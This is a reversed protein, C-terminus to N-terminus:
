KKRVKKRRKRTPGQEWEETKGEERKQGRKRKETRKGRQREQREWKGEEDKRSGGGKKGNERRFGRTRDRM